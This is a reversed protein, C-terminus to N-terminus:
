NKINKASEHWTIVKQIHAQATHYDTTHGCQFQIKYKSGSGYIAKIKYRSPNETTVLTKWLAKRTLIHNPQDTLILECALKLNRTADHGVSSPKTEAALKNLISENIDVILEDEKDDQLFNFLYSFEPLRKLLRLALEKTVEVSLDDSIERIPRTAVIAIQLVGNIMATECQNPSMLVFSKLHINLMDNLEERLMKHIGIANNIILDDEYNVDGYDTYKKSSIALYYALHKLWLVKPFSTPILMVPKNRCYDRLGIRLEDTLNINALRSAYLNQWARKIEKEKEKPTAQPNIFPIM